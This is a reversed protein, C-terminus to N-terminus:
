RFHTADGKKSEGEEQIQYALLLDRLKEAAAEDEVTLEHGCCKIVYDGPNVRFGLAAAKAFLDIVKMPQGCSPCIACEPIDNLHIM